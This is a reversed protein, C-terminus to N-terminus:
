ENKLPLKMVKDYYDKAQGNGGLGTYVKFFEMIQDLQIQTIYGQALYARSLQILRFRYSAVILNLQSKHMSENDRTYQRLDELEQYIPSLHAEVTIDIEAKEKELALKEADDLKKKLQNVKWKAYGIIGGSVLLFLIETGWETLLEALPIQGEKRSHKEM